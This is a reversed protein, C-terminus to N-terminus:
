YDEKLIENEYPDIVLSHVEVAFWKDFTALDRKKPWFDPNRYWSELEVAFIDACLDRIHERAQTVDDLEPLLYVTCDASLQEMTVPFGDGQPHYNIWDLFPQKPKIIAVARNITYM